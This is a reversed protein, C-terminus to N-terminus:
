FDLKESSKEEVDGFKKPPKYARHEYLTYDDDVLLVGGKIYRQKLQSPMTLGYDFATIPRTKLFFEKSRDQMGACKILWYPNVKEHDEKRVFECYTKQRIYKARSWESECKWCLLATAHEKIGQPEADLMHISDTDAYLFADFNQQAHTITFYRAYSTIASGQAISITQKNHEEHFIFRLIGDEDLFPEQYSSDDSSALKGYCNNLFLKAETRAGGTSNQKIEMYKNIYDDFLGCVTSFWCGHLYEIEIIDYHVFFLKLDTCTLTMEAYAMKLIGESDWYYPYFKGNSQVDSSILWDTSRYMLSDKIQVTPLHKEKIRFRVKIRVFYYINDRKAEAPIEGVWFHPRGVPYINGSKSHMVSPYLSNVDYTRGAQNIWQNEIGRKVYCWGGRYSRRIYADADSYGFQEPLKIAKLDPYLVNWEGKSFGQRYEHLCNSGITLRTNGHNLMYELAEKLVLVDNIIYQMEDPKIVGGAHREGKYEMELKQHKTKFAKGMAKLSMPMLKASDRFEVNTRGFCVTISYWRNEGSIVCDYEGKYLKDFKRERKKFKFGRNILTTLFFAGDFKINHFWVIVKQETLHEFYSLFDDINNYVQVVDSYLQAFAASWVETSKQEKTNQDVTTEFDAAFYLM